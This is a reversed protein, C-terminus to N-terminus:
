CRVFRKPKCSESFAIYVAEQQRELWCCLNRQKKAQHASCQEFQGREKKKCSDTGLSLASAYGIKTSCVQQEFELNPLCVFLHSM